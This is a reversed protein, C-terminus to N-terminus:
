RQLEAVADIQLRFKSDNDFSLFVPPASYRIPKAGGLQRVLSTLNSRIINRGNSWDSGGSTAVNFMYVYDGSKSHVLGGLTVAPNVTGTKALVSAATLSNNYLKHATSTTDRGIVALVHELKKKGKTLEVRLDDIVKLTAACTAENYAKGTPLDVRDGSGNYFLMDNQDIGLKALVYERFAEAGGLHEFIQNAAHNNSNRNMEKLIALLPASRMVFILEPVQDFQHQSLFAINEVTFVPSKVMDIKRSQASKLTTDYGSTLSGMAKLESLVRSPSPSSPTYFGHAVSASTVDRFFKFNEDFTFNRINKIGHKNLESIAFHLSEKGFYPDRSGQVHVDFKGNEVPIIHFKTEFRYQLGRSSVIWWSTMIKSVSAIPLRDNVANGSITRPAGAQMRCSSRLSAANAQDFQLLFLFILFAIFRSSAM